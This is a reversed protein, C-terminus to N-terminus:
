EFLGKPESEIIDAIESFTFGNDNKSTLSTTFGNGYHGEKEVLGLWERVTGHLSQSQGLYSDLVWTKSPNERQHLECAVGLCCHFMTGKQNDTQTSFRLFGKGQKYKGSRLAQVWKKANDNLM